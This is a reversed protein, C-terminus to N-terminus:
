IHPILEIWRVTDFASPPLSRLSTLALVLLCIRAIPYLFASPFSLLFTLFALYSAICTHVEKVVSSDSDEDDLASIILVALFMCLCSSVVIFAAVRWLIQEVHSPFVFHWAFCHIAGFLTGAAASSGLMSEIEALESRFMMSATFKWRDAQSKETLQETLSIGAGILVAITPIFFILDIPYLVPVLVFLLIDRAYELLNREPQGIESRGTFSDSTVPREAPNEEMNHADYETLSLYLSDQAGIVSPKGELGEESSRLRLRLLARKLTGSIRAVRRPAGCVGRKFASAWDDSRRPLSRVFEYTHTVTNLLARTVSEWISDWIYKRLSFESEGFEWKVDKANDKLLEQVVRTQLVIPCRVDLPKSWWFLYMASNLGALAATTLELETIALGQVARAINQAIFWALQLYAIGKSLADGKSKDNIEERTITPFTILNEHLLVKFCQQTLVGEVVNVEKVKTQTKPVFNEQNWASLGDFESLTMSVKFGGMQM